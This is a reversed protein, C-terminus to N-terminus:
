GVKKIINRFEENTEAFFVEGTKIDAYFYLYKGKTPNFVADVSIISSNCIPGIPLGPMYPNRTNYPNVTFYEARTIQSIEKQLAYATTVDMGLSMNAALRNHVVQSVDKRDDPYNAELEIIAAMSLIQHVSYQSDNINDIYPELKKATNNLMKIVIEEITADHDFQYTDPFLYGELPYYIGEKLIEDTLFWYNEILENLFDTNNIVGKIDAETYGFKESILYIYSTIRRGEVFTAVVDAIKRGSAIKDIIEGTTMNKSLEFSGAKLSVGSVQTYVYGTINSRILGSKKLNDIIEKFGSGENITFVVKKDDSKDVPTLSYFYFGIGLGVLFIIITLMIAPKKLKRKKM